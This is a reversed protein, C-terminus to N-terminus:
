LSVTSLLRFTPLNLGIIRKSARPNTITSSDTVSIATQKVYISENISLQIQFPIPRRCLFRSKLPTNM